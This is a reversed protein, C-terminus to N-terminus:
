MSVPGRQSWGIPRSAGPAPACPPAQSSRQPRGRSNAFVSWAVFAPARTPFFPSASPHSLIPLASARRMVSWPLGAPPFTPSAHEVLVEQNTYPTSRTRRM